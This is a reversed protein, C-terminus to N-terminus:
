QVQGNDHVNYPNIAECNPSISSFISVPSVTLSNILSNKPKLCSKRPTTAATITPRATKKASVNAM